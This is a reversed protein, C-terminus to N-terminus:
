NYYLFEELSNTMLDIYEETEWNILNINAIIDNNLIVELYFKDNVNYVYTTYYEYENVEMPKYNKFYKEFTITEGNKIKNYIDSVYDMTINNTQYAKNKLTFILTIIVIIIFIFLISLIIKNNKM